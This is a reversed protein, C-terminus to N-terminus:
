RECFLELYSSGADLQGWGLVDNPLYPSNASFLKHEGPAFAKSPSNSNPAFFTWAHVGSQEAMDIVRYPGTGDPLQIIQPATNDFPIHIIETRHNANAM